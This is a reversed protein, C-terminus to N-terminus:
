LLDYGPHLTQERLDAALLLQHIVYPNTRNKTFHNRLVEGWHGFGSSEDIDVDAAWEGAANRMLTLQLNAHADQSKVSNSLQYGPLPKHLSKGAPVYAPDSALYEKLAPDVAVFCRDQRILLPRRFFRWVEGATARHRSKAVVNLLGAQRKPGLAAYLDSGALGLLDQDENQRGEARAARANDPEAVQMQAAQLFQRLSLPLRSFSPAHIGTVSKPDRVLYITQLARQEGESLFQAFSFRKYRKSFFSLRYLTGVGGATAIGPLRFQSRGTEFAFDLDQGAAGSPGSDRRLEVQIPGQPPEGALDQLIGSLQATPM